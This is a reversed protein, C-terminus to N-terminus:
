NCKAYYGNSIADKYNTIYFSNSRGNRNWCDYSMYYKENNPIIVIYKDYFDIKQQLKLIQSGNVTIYGTISSDNEIDVTGDDNVRYNLKEKVVKEKIKIKLKLNLFQFINLSISFLLIITLIISTKMHLSTKNERIDSIILSIGIFGCLLFGFWEVINTPFHNGELTAGYISLCQIFILFIGFNRKGHKVDNLNKKM